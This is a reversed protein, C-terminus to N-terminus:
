GGLIQLAKDYREQTIEKRRLMRDIQSHASQLELTLQASPKYIKLAKAEGHHGAGHAEYDIVLFIGRDLFWRFAFSMRQRVAKRNVDSNRGFMTRALCGIECWQKRLSGLHEELHDAMLAHRFGYPSVSRNRVTVLEPKTKVVTLEAAMFLVGQKM